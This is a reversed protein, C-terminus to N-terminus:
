ANTVDLEGQRTTREFGARSGAVDAAKSLRERLDAPVEQGKRCRRAIERAAAPDAMLKVGATEATRRIRLASWDKGKAAVRTPKGAEGGALAVAWGHPDFVVLRCAPVERAVRGDSLKRAIDRRRHRLLWDGEARRMDDKWQRRTMRLDQRHQWRQYFYDALGIALLCCGVWLGASWAMRGAEGALRRVGMTGAGALHPIEPRLTWYGVAAVVGVKALTLAARVLTRPSLLRRLGNRPSIRGMDVGV